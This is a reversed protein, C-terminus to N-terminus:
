LGVTKTTSRNTKRRVELSSNFLKMACSVFSKRLRNTRCKLLLLRRSFRSEQSSIVSHLLHSANDMIAQLKQLMRREAVTALTWGWVSWQALRSSKNRWGPFTLRQSAEVWAYWLADSFAPLLLSTLCGWCSKMSTLPDWYYMRTQALQKTNSTFDLKNDLWLGLYKNQLDLHKRSQKEWGTSIIWLIRSVGKMGCTSCASQLWGGLVLLWVLWM